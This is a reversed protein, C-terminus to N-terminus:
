WRPLDGVYDIHYRRAFAHLGWEKEERLVAGLAAVIQPDFRTHQLRRLEQWAQQGSLAPRWGLPTTLSDYYNAVALVRAEIPLRQARPAGGAGHGNFWHRHYRVADAAGPVIECQGVLDASEALMRQLELLEKPKPPAARFLLREDANILGIEHMLGAAYVALVRTEPLQLKRAIAVAYRAVRYAHGGRYPNRSEVAQCLARLASWHLDALNTHLRTAHIALACFVLGFALGTRTIPYATFFRGLPAGLAVLLVSNSCNVALDRLVHAFFSVRYRVTGEAARLATYTLGHLLAVALPLLWWVMGPPPRGAAAYLELAVGYLIVGEAARVLARVWQVRTRTTEGALVATLRAGAATLAAFWPGCVLFAAIDLAFTARFQEHLGPLRYPVLAAVTTLAAFFPVSLARNGAWDLQSPPMRRHLAALFLAAAAVLVGYYVRLGPPLGSWEDLFDVWRLGRRVNM